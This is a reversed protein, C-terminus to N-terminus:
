SSRVNPTIAQMLGAGGHRWIEFTILIQEDLEWGLTKITIVVM